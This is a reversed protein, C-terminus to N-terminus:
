VYTIESFLLKKKYNKLGESVQKLTNKPLNNLAFWGLDDSKDKENIVPTGQWKNIVFFLDIYDFNSKRFSTHVLEINKKQVTLGSEEKIERILAETVNENEELHGAPVGYMGDKWGTNKRRMLLVKNSKFFFAYVASRITFRDTM